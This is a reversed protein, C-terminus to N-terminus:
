NRTTTFPAYVKRYPQKYRKRFVADCHKSRMDFMHSLSFCETLFNYLVMSNTRFTVKHVHISRIICM